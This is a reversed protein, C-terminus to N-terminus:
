RQRSNSFEVFTPEENKMFKVIPIYKPSYTHERVFNIFEVPVEYYPGTLNRKPEKKINFKSLNIKVIPDKCINYMYSEPILFKEGDTYVIYKIEYYENNTQNDAQKDFDKDFIQKNYEQEFIDNSM